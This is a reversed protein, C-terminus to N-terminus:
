PRLLMRAPKKSERIQRYVDNVDDLSVVETDVRIGDRLAVAYAQELDSRSGVFSGRVTIEQVIMQFVPIPLEDLPLGIGVLTGRPRLANFAQQFPKIQVSNVIAAHAGGIENRIVVAPDHRNSNILLEAGNTRAIELAEDWASVAIVRLGFSRAYQLTYEGVAGLGFIVCWDGAHVNAAKLAGWATVGTCTLHAAQDLDLGDPIRGVYRSDAKVYEAYAGDAQFGTLKVQSCLMQLGEFCFSCQGCSWHILPVGVRDGVQFRTVEEGLSVITGAGRHGPVRPLVPSAIEPFNGRHADVDGNCVGCAHVKVIVEGRGPVPVPLERIVLPENFQEILAAKM